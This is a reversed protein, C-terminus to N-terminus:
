GSCSRLAFLAQVLGTTYVFIVRNYRIRMGLFTCGTLLLRTDDRVIDLMVPPLVPPQLTLTCGQSGLSHRRGQAIPGTPAEVCVKVTLCIKILVQACVFYQGLSSQQHFKVVNRINNHTTKHQQETNRRCSHLDSRPRSKFPLIIHTIRIRRPAHVFICASTFSPLKRLIICAPLRCTYNRLAIRIWRLSVISSALILSRRCRQMRHELHIICM